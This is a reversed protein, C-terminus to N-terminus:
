KQNVTRPQAYRADTQTFTHYDTTAQVVCHPDPAPCLPHTQGDQTVVTVPHGPDMEMVVVDEVGQAQVVHYM